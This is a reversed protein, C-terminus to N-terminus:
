GTGLSGAPGQADPDQVVRSRGIVWGGLPELRAEPVESELFTAVHGEVDLQRVPVAIPQGGAGFGQDSRPDVHDERAALRGRERGLRRRSGNRDDERDHPIGDRRADHFGDGM